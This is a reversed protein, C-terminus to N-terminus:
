PPPFSHNDNVMKDTDLVPEGKLTGVLARNAAVPIWVRVPNDAPESIPKFSGDALEAIAVSDGLVLHREAQLVIWRMSKLLQVRTGSFDNLRKSLSKQHAVAVINSVRQELANLLKEFQAGKADLFRRALLISQQEVSEKTMRNQGLGVREFTSFLFEPRQRFGSALLQELKNPDRLQARTHTM